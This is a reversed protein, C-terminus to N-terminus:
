AATRYRLAPGLWDSADRWWAKRAAIWTAQGLGLSPDASALPVADPHDPTWDGADAWYCVGERLFCAASFLISAYGPHPPAVRLGVVEEFRLEIASPGALQRQILVHVTTRGDVSMSLDAQVYEGTVVHMERICSDHFHGVLVLLQEVSEPTSLAQWGRPVESKM